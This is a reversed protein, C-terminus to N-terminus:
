GDVFMTKINHLQHRLMAIEQQLIPPLPMELTGKVYSRLNNTTPLGDITKNFPWALLFMTAFEAAGVESVETAAAGCDDSECAISRVDHAFGFPSSLLERERVTSNLNANAADGKEINSNNNAAIRDLSERVIAYIPLTKIASM